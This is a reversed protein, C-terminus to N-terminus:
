NMLQLGNGNGMQIDVHATGTLELNSTSRDSVKPCEALHSLSLLSCMVLSLQQQLDCHSLLVIHAAQVVCAFLNIFLSHHKESSPSLRHCTGNLNTQFPKLCQSPFFYWICQKFQMPLSMLSHVTISRLAGFFLCKHFTHPFYLDSQDLFAKFMLVNICTQKSNSCHCLVM